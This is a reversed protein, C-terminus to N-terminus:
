WDYTVLGEVPDGDRDFCAWACGQELAHRCALRLENPVPTYDGADTMVYSDTAFATAFVIWGYDGKRYAGPCSGLWENCTAERLHATSMTLMKSIGDTELANTQM